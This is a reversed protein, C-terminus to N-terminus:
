LPPLGVVGRRHPWCWRLEVALLYLLSHPMCILMWSPCLHLEWESNQKQSWSGALSSQLPLCHSLHNSEQWQTSSGAAVQIRFFLFCFSLLSFLFSKLFLLNEKRHIFEIFEGTARKKLNVFVFNSFGNLFDILFLIM